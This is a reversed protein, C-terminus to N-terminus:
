IRFRYRFRYGFRFVQVQPGVASVQSRFNPCTKWGWGRGRGWVQMGGKCRQVAEEAERKGEDM